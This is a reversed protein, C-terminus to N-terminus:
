SAVAAVCSCCQLLLDECFGSIGQSRSPSPALLDLVVGLERRMMAARATRGLARESVPVRVLNMSTKGFPVTTGRSRGFPLAQKKKRISAACM